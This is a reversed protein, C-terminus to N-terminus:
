QAFAFITILLLIKTILQLFCKHIEFPSLPLSPSDKRLYITDLGVGMCPLFVLMNNVVLAASTFFGIGM